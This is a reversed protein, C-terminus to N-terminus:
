VWGAARVTSANARSVPVDTGDILTLVVKGSDRRADRLGARAVWWSRHTQLGDVGDLMVIADALRMLIMHQGASTHVRLYHDESSVAWLDAARFKLPLREMFAAKGKATDVPEAHAPADVNAQKARDTLSGILYSGVTMIMSIVFVFLFQTLWQQPPILTDSMYSLMIVVVATIPLSVIAATIPIQLWTPSGKMPGDFVWPVVFAAVSWGIIMTSGWFGWALMFPMAHTGYVGLFAFLWGLGIMLGISRALSMAHQKMESGAKAACMPAERITYASM